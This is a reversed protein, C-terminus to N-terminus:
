TATFYYEHACHPGLAPLSCRDGPRCGSPVNCCSDRLAIIGYCLCYSNYKGLVGIPKSDWSLHRQRLM